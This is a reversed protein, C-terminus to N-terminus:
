SYFASDISYILKSDAERYVEVTYKKLGNESPFVKSIVCYAASENTPASILESNYLFIKSEIEKGSKILEAHNQALILANSMDKSETINASAMATIAACVSACVAFITLAIMIEMLLLNSKRIQVQAM